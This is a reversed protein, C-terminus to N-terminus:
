SSKLKGAKSFPYFYIFQYAKSHIKQSDFRMRQILNRIKLLVAQKFDPMTKPIIKFCDNTM